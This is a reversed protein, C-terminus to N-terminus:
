GYGLQVRVMAIVCDDRLSWSLNEICGPLLLNKAGRGPKLKWEMQMIIEGGDAASVDRELYM